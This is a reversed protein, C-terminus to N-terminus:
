MVLGNACGIFINILEASLSNPGMVVMQCEPSFFCMGQLAKAKLLLSQSRTSSVHMM